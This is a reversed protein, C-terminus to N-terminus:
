QSERLDAKVERKSGERVVGFTMNITPPNPIHFRRAGPFSHSVKGNVGCGCRDTHQRGGPHDTDSIGVLLLMRRALTPNKISKNVLFEGFIV